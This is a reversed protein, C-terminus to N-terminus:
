PNQEPVDRANLKRTAAFKNIQAPKSRFTDLKAVEQPNPQAQAIDEKSLGKVGTTATSKTTGTRIVGGIAALTGSAPSTGTAVRVNLLRVWGTKGDATRVRSWGGKSELVTLAADAPLSTVNAADIFAEAKLDGARILTAPTAQLSGIAGLCLLAALLKRFTPKLTM